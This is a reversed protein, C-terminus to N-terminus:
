SVPLCVTSRLRDMTTSVRPKIQANATVGASAASCSPTNTPSVLGVCEEYKWLTERWLQEFIGLETWEQFCLHANSGSCLTHTIAKWQCGTRLSYFIVDFVNRLPTRPRGGKSSLRYKLLLPRVMQWCEESACVPYLGLVTGHHIRRQTTDSLM